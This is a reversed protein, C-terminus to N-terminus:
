CVDCIICALVVSMINYFKRYAQLENKAIWEELREVIGKEHHKKKAIEAEEVKEEKVVEKEGNQGIIYEGDVWALFKSKEKKNKM